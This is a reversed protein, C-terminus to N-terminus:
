ETNLREKREGVFFDETYFRIERSVIDELIEAAIKGKM